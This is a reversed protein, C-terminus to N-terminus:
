NVKIVGYEYYFFCKFSYVTHAAPHFRRPVSKGSSKKKKLKGRQVNKNQPSLFNGDAGNRDTSRVFLAVELYLAAQIDGATYCSGNSALLGNDVRSRRALLAGARDVGGKPM